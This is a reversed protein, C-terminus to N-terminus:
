VKTVKVREWGWIVPRYYEVSLPDFCLDVWDWTITKAYMLIGQPSDVGKNILETVQITMKHKYFIIFAIKRACM